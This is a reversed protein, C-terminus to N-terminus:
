KHNLTNEETERLAREEENYDHILTALAVTAIGFCIWPLVFLM